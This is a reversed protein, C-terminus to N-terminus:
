VIYLDFGLLHDAGFVVLLREGKKVMKRKKMEAVAKKILNESTLKPCVFPQVGWRLNNQQAVENNPCALALPLEPHSVLLKEAELSLETAALVQDIGKTLSLVKITHAISLFGIQPQDFVSVDDFPSEEAETIIKSMLKVAKVPYKGTATEGSLMVADTHD